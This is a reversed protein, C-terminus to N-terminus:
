RNQESSWAAFHAASSAPGALCGEPEPRSHARSSLGGRSTARGLPRYRTLDPARAVISKEVTMVRDLDAVLCRAATAPIFAYRPRRARRIQQLEEASVEVLPSVEVFPRDVCARVLDCTQTLVVLGAVESTLAQLGAEELEAAAATLAQRRDGVHVFWPEELALDGQRWTALAADIAM